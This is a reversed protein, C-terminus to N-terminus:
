FDLHLKECTAQAGLARKLTPYIRSGCISVAMEAIGADGYADRLRELRAPDVLEGSTVSLVHARVDGLAGPLLAPSEILTRLLERSVGAEVAMKLNLQACAGCDEGQMATVKAVFQAELPLAGMAGGLGQASEYAAFAEPSWSAMKKLYDADYGYHASFQDLSEHIEQTTKM